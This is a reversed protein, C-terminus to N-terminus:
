NVWGKQRAIAIIKREIEHLRDSFAENRNHSICRKKAGVTMCTTVLVNGPLLPRGEVKLQFFNLEEMAEFITAVFVLDVETKRHGLVRTFKEGEFIYAGNRHLTVEFSSVRDRGHEPIRISVKGKSSVSDGVMFVGCWVLM